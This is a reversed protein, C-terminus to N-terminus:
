HLLAFGLVILLLVGFGVPFLMPYTHAFLSV